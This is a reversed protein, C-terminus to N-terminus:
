FELLNDLGVLGGVQHLHREVLDRHRETVVLEDGHEALGARALRRHEVDDAAEVAELTAVEDDIADGRLVVLGPVPVGVAVVADAEDELGVVQDGVLADQSVDFQGQGQRADRTGLAALAGEVGQRAHSKGFVDVLLGGLHRAALHLADGDRAGEDVVGFDQEGVLGGAGEVGLRAHLDHVQQAVDGAVAEDDHDRVVGLQGVLVGCADDLEGVAGDDGVGVGEHGGGLVAALGLRRAAGGHAEEGGQGQGEVVQHGLLAAGEHGGERPGDADDADGGDQGEGIARVGVDRAGLFLCEAGVWQGNM